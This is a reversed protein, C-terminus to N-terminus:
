VKQGTDPNYTFGEFKKQNETSIAKGDDGDELTPKESTFQQDIM